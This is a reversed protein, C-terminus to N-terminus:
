SLLSVSLLLLVPFWPWLSYQSWLLTPLLFYILNFSSSRTLFSPLCHRPIGLLHNTVM